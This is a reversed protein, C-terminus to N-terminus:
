FAYILNVALTVQHQRLQTETVFVPVSSHDCRFDGRFVFRTPLRGLNVTRRYEPTITFGTLTQAKGTRVGDSDRFVEGRFSM